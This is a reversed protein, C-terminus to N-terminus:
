ALLIDTDDLEECPALLLRAPRPHESSGISSKNPIVTFVTVVNRMDCEKSELECLVSEKSIAYIGPINPPTFAARETLFSAPVKDLKMRGLKITCGWETDTLLLHNVSLGAVRGLKEATKHVM